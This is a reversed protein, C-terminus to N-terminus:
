SLLGNLGALAAPEKKLTDDMFILWGRIVYVSVDTLSTLILYLTKKLLVCLVVCLGQHRLPIDSLSWLPKFLSVCTESVCMFIVCVCM